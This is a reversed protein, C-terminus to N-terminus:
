KQPRKGFKIYIYLESICEGIVGLLIAILFLVFGRFKYKELFSSNKLLFIFSLGCFLYIFRIIGFIWRKKIFRNKCNYCVLNQNEELLFSFYNIKKEWGCNPCYLKM